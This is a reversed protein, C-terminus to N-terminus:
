PLDDRGFHCIWFYLSERKVQFLIRNKTPEHANYWPKRLSAGVVTMKTTPYRQQVHDESNKNDIQEEEIRGNLRRRGGGGGM